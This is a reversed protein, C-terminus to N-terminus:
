FKVDGKYEFDESTTLSCKIGKLHALDRLEGEYFKSDMAKIEELTLPKQEKIENM